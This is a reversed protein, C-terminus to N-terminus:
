VKANNMAFSVNGYDFALRIGGHLIQDMTSQIPEVLWLAFGYVACIVAPMIANISHRSKSMLALTMRAWCVGQDIDGLFVILNSSFSALAFYSEECCGFKLSIEVMRLIVIALKYNRQHSYSHVLCIMVKMAMIKNVDAMQFSLQRSGEQIARKVRLLESAVHAVDVDSPDIPEGMRDLLTHCENIAAQLSTTSVLKIWVLRTRFEEDLNSAYKFVTKIRETLLDQNGNTFSYLAIVSTEHISLMLNHHSKWHSSDLFSLSSESYKFASCFDPVSLAKKGAKENMTAYLVRQTPDLVEEKPIRNILDVVVFVNEDIEGADTANRILVSVLKKLLQKREDRPILDFVTQESYTVIHLVLTIHLSFSIKMSLSRVQAIIDHAFRFMKLSGHVEVLGVEIAAKLAAGIDVSDDGDYGNLLSITRQEIRIGFISCIQLGLVDAASLSKLKYTFLEAVSDSIPCSEITESDWEWGKVFSHCLIREATLRGIFEIIHIVIGDTKQLIIESLPKTRRLPLCLSESVIMNMAGLDFGRVGIETVQVTSTSKLSHLLEVLRANDDNDRYAGIFLLKTKKSPIGSSSSSSLDSESAKTLAAFLDLSATDAWQLDDCFLAAAQGPASLAAILKSFLHHIQDKNAEFRGTDDLPGDFLKALCPVHKSLISVDTPQMTSNLRTRIQHQRLTGICQELFENFAGAIISLPESHVIRDFKCHLFLWGRNELSKKTEMVLRSKGSGASGTVMVIQQKGQPTLMALAELLADNSNTGTVRAAADLLM